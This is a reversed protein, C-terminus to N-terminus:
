HNKMALPLFTHYIPNSSSITVSHNIIASTNGVENSARLYVQYTGNKFIVIKFDEEYPSDWQNDGAVARQWPGTTGIRYEVFVTNITVDIYNPNTTSWPIDMVTANYTLIYSPSPSSPYGSITFTPETDRPNPIGDADSDHWGVHGQTYYCVTNYNGSADWRPAHMICDDDPHACAAHKCNQNPINLYGWTRLCDSSIECIGGAPEEDPAGFLHGIEHMLVEGLHEFEWGDNDRTLVIRFGAISAYASIWNSFLGPTVNDNAADNNSDVVFITTAWDTGLESRLFNDYDRVELMYDNQNYSDYGLYAMAEDIWLDEDGNWWGEPPGGNRSIPEYSTPALIPAEQYVKFTLSNSGNYMASKNEWWSLGELIETYVKDIEWQGWNETNPDIAGNSELLVIAVAVEGLMYDALRSETPGYGAGSTMMQMQQIGSPLPVIDNTLPVPTSPPAVPVHVLPSTFLSPPSLPSITHGPRTQTLTFAQVSTFGAGRFGLYLSSCM